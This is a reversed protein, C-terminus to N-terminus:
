SLVGRGGAGVVDSRLDDGASPSHLVPIGEPRDKEGEGDVRGDHLGPCGVSVECGPLYRDRSRKRSSSKQAPEVGATRQKRRARRSPKRRMPSTTFKSLVSTTGAHGDAWDNAGLSKWPHEQFPDELKLSKPSM